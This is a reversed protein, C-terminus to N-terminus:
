QRSKGRWRMSTPWAMSRVCFEGRGITLYYRPPRIAIPPSGRQSRKPVTMPATSWSDVWIGVYKKKVPDYCDMGHGQFKQGGFESELRAEAVDVRGHEFTASM